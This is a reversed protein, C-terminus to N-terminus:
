ITSRRGARGCQLTVPTTRINRDRKGAYFSQPIWGTLPRTRGSIWYETRNCTSIVVCGTVGEIEKSDALAREVASATMSFLERVKVPAKRYDIGAM